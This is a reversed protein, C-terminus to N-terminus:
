VGYICNWIKWVPTAAHLEHKM